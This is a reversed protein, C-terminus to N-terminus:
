LAFPIRDLTNTLHEFATEAIYGNRNTCESKLALVLSEGVAKSTM